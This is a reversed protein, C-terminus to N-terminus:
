GPSREEAPRLVLLGECIIFPKRSTPNESLITRVAEIYYALPHPSLGYTNLSSGNPLFTHQPLFATLKRRFLLAVVRDRRVGHISADQPYGELTATRTTVAGTYPSTYLERLQAIESVWPNASPFVPTQLEVSGLLIPAM